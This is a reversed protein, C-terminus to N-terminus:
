LKVARLVSTHIADVLIGQRAQRCSSSLLDPRLPTDLQSSVVERWQLLVM